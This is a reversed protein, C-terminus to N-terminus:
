FHYHELLMEHGQNIFDKFFRYNIMTLKLVSDYLFVCQQNEDYFYLDYNKIERITQYQDFFVMTENIVPYYFQDSLQYPTLKDLLGRCSAGSPKISFVKARKGLDEMIDKYLLSADLNVLFLQSNIM